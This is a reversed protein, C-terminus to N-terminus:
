TQKLMTTLVKTIKDLRQDRDGPMCTNMCTKLEHEVFVATFKNLAAKVAAVQLLVEDAHRREQVMKKVARVHGEIRALRDTFAKKSDDDLYVKDLKLDVAKAKKAAM